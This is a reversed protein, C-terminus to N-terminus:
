RNEPKWKQEPFKSLEGHFIRPLTDEVSIYTSGQEGYSTSSEQM